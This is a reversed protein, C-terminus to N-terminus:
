RSEGLRDVERSGSPFSGNLGRNEYRVEEATLGKVGLVM